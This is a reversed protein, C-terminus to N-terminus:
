AGFRLSFWVMDKKKRFQIYICDGIKTWLTNGRHNKVNQELWDVM